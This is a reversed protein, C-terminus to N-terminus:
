KSKKVDEGEDCEAELTWLLHGNQLLTTLESPIMEMTNRKMKNENSQQSYQNLFQFKNQDVTPAKRFVM